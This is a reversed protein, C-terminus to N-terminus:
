CAGFLMRCAPVCVCVLCRVVHRLGAEAVRRPPGLGPRAKSLGDILEALRSEVEEDSLMSGSARDPSPLTRTRTRSLNRVDAHGLRM